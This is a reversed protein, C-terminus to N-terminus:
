YDGRQSCVYFLVKLFHAKAIKQICVSVPDCTVSLIWQMDVALVECLGWLYHFDSFRGVSVWYDGFPQVIIIRRDVTLRRPIVARPWVTDLAWGRKDRQTCHILHIYHDNKDLSEGCTILRNPTRTAKQGNIWVSSSNKVRAQKAPRSKRQYKIWSRLRQWSHARHNSSVNVNNMGFSFLFYFYFDKKRKKLAFSASSHCLITRNRTTM